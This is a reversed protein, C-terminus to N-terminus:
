KAGGKPAAPISTFADPRAKFGGSRATKKWGKKQADAALQKVTTTAEDFTAVTKTMGRQSKKSKVDTTQVFVTASGDPRRMAMITLRMGGATLTTSFRKAETVTTDPAETTTNKIDM